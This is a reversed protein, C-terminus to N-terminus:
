GRGRAQGKGDALTPLKRIAELTRLWAPRALGYGAKEHILRVTGDQHEAFM